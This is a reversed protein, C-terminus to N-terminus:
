LSLCQALSWCLLTLNKCKTCGHLWYRVSYLFSRYIAYRRIALVAFFHAFADNGAAFAYWLLSRPALFRTRSSTTPRVASFCVLQIPCIRAHHNSYRSFHGIFLLNFISQGRSTSLLLAIRMKLVCRGGQYLLWRFILECLKASSFPSM